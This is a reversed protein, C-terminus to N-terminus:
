NKIDCLKSKPLQSTYIENKERKKVFIKCTVRQSAPADLKEFQYSQDMELGVAAGDFESKFKFKLMLKFWSVVTCISM